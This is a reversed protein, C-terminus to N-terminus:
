ASRQIATRDRRWHYNRTKTYLLHKDSLLANLIKLVGERQQKSLGINPNM